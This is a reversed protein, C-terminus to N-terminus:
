CVIGELLKYVRELSQEGPREEPSVLPNTEFLSIFEGVLGDERNTIVLEGVDLRVDYKDSIFIRLM